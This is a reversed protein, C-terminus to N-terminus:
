SQFIHLLDELSDVLSAQGEQLRRRSHHGSPILLCQVGMEDAVHLDHLTDGIFLVREPDIHNLQLWTEGLHAKGDAYHHDLGLVTKFYQGINYDKLTQKLSDSQSASLMCQPLCKSRFYKLANEADKHLALSNRSRHYTSIFENSLAKFSEESVDFGIRKYYEIVPFDFSERYAELSIPSMSRKARIGNMIDVCFQADDVLTGNWDWIIHQIHEPRILM